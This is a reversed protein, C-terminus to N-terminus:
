ELKTQRQKIGGAEKKSTLGTLRTQPLPRKTTKGFSAVTKGSLTRLEESIVDNLIAELKQMHEAVTLGDLVRHDYVFTIRVSGDSQVPGYTIVLNGLTPPHISTADCLSVSTIGVTGTLGTKVSGSLNLAFWWVLGRMIWPLRCFKRRFQFLRNEEIPQTQARNISEQIEILSRSEPKEIRHFVLLKEEEVNRSVAVYGIQHPHLYLHGWPWKMFSHRLEPESEALTAIAKLMISAWGIRQPSKKRLAVLNEVNCIRSIPQSPVQKCFHLYDVIFRRSPKLKLRKGRHLGMTEFFSKRESM